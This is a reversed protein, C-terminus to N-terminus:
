QPNSFYDEAQFFVPALERQEDNDIGKDAAHHSHLARNQRFNGFGFKV